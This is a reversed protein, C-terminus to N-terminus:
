RGGQFMLQVANDRQEGSGVVGRYDVQISYRGLDFLLGLGLMLRSRDFGDVETLYVPGLGDAYRMSAGGAATLDHQYEVRLQPSFAGWGTGRRFQMRLGLNGTTTDVDQEGYSLAWTDDGQETYRALAGRMADLRAYPTFQWADRAIDIGVSVSAFLQDGDRRGQVSGGTATLHREMDFDLRQYGALGDVFVSGRPQLSGYLALTWAKGRLHSGHEGITTSDQGYGLGAGVVLGPHLRTDIGASVGETEFDFGRGGAQGDFSGSRLTGGAWTGFTAPTGGPDMGGDAEDMPALRDDNGADRWRSRNSAHCPHEIAYFRNDPCQERSALTIGNRHGATGSQGHLQELRQQFNGIQSSAFRRTAAAQADLLGRVEPDRTPDPRAIVVLAYRRTGSFGLADTARVTFDFTGDEAPTGSLSGDDALALGAPLTGADIAFAYPATGGRASLAQAYAFAQLAEPLTDPDIVIEPATVALVYDVTVTGATGTTSDTATIAFAFSGAETPTGSVVGRAPDLALGDPLAGSSLAYRYPAVGGSATFTQRWAVGGTAAPLTDPSLALTPAAVDLTYTASVSAPAGSTSDTVTVTVTYRGAEVPTGSFALTTGDFAVGAPLAGTLTATYPAVGGDVQLVQRYAIGATAGPLAGAAPLLSLTPAAVALTYAQDVSQGNADTATLTFDFTGAGTPTGSLVGDAALALGAPLTGTTIAFAYPAIGGSATIAQRYPAGATADPLTVPTIALIPAPVELTYARSVTFPAGAGSSGTDTATVTIAYSGPETPTGSLTDGSFAMGAPLTGGLAYTYPGIGGSAVFAQSFAAAYPAQLTGTAPALALAPDGVVLAYARDVSQGNADTATVTFNFTGAETPAGALAGDAALTLGPPLAGATLAIAYPAVGGSAAISQAYTAGVVADPLAAPTIALTPSAVVLTYAKSVTFPAGTGTSGTDTATVTIAYSGPETATGSLTDGAFALGAPLTGTLAYTYPGVGGAAAFAQSFAAAYPADLTGAGPALVLAPADVVLNFVEAYTYPGNGSSSDTASVDLAFTGAESPTGSVTVSDAGSATIALGDPLNAVQYGSWPAAGGDFTFTQSYPAATTATLPGSATIGLVADAVTVSVTAPASVGGANSATYAFSDAGAYGADPQYTITVGAVVVTGHAPATTIALSDPAGGSLTLPVSTAPAGYPVTLASDNAVPTPDSVQLTFGRTATYPGTGTSSDTATVSFSFTGVATPTGSLSGAASLTV